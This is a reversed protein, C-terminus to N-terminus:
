AHAVRNIHEEIVTIIKAYVTSPYDCHLEVALEQAQQPLLAVLADLLDLVVQPRVDCEEAMRAFHERSIKNFVAEGGIKMASEPSLAPYVRTCLLDYLPALSLARRRYLVSYNKAHADGNGILYNFIVSRFFELQAAAGLRMDRIMQLCQKIGPGGESEYKNEPDVGCIQCFDEQHLRCCRGQEHCRDYRDTCYYHGGALTLISAAAVPLNARRALSMCFFENYVSDPYAAIAPKIIHTSPTGYLPLSIRGASVCAILKDQAGAGSIRFGADVGLHLPRLPLEGLIRVSEEESLLRYAPTTQEDGLQDPPYFAVAGACDGGIAQLFGFINHRSLHLIKGLRKRVADPPLLNKFFAETAPGTFPQARLPLSFSLPTAAALRLYDPDYQFSLVGGQLLLTGTKHGHLYVHLCNM